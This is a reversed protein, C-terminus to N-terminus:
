EKFINKIRNLTLKSRFNNNDVIHFKSHPMVQRAHKLVRINDDFLHVHEPKINYQKQGKKMQQGKKIGFDWELYPETTEGAEVIHSNFTKFKNKNLAVCLNKPVWDFYKNTEEEFCVHNITRRSATIIGIICNREETLFNIIMNVEEPDANTLTDDIDFYVLSLPRVLGEEIEHEENHILSLKEDVFKDNKHLLKKILFYLGISLIILAVLM